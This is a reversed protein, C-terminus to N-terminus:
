INRKNEIKMGGVKSNKAEKTMKIATSKNKIKRKITKTFKKSV